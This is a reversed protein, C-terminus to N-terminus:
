KLKEVKEAFKDIALRIEGVVGGKQFVIAPNLIAMITPASLKHSEVELGCLDYVSADKGVFEKVADSGILLIIKKGKAESICKQLGYNYCDENGNPKHLWINTVRLQTLDIGRYGLEPRLVNGTPGVFPRSQKVEEDGPFEGILLIPSDKPGSPDVMDKNCHPCKLIEKDWDDDTLFDGWDDVM